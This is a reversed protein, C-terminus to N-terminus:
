SLGALSRCERVGAARRARRCQSRPQGSCWRQPATSERWTPRGKRRCLWGRGARRLSYVLDRALGQSTACLNRPQDVAADLRHGFTDSGGLAARKVNAAAAGGAEAGRGADTGAGAGGAMARIGAAVDGPPHHRRALATKLKLVVQGAANTQVRENAPAVRTGSNRSRRRPGRRTYSRYSRLSSQQAAYTASLDVVASRPRRSDPREVQPDAKRRHSRVGSRRQEVWILCECAQVRPVAATTRASIPRRRALQGKRRHGRPCTMDHRDRLILPRPDAGTRRGCRAV